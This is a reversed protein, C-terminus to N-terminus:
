PSVWSTYVKAKRLAKEMYRQIRAVYETHEDSTMPKLPWTGLLTQYLVYEANASPVEVGDLDGKRSQNMRRWSRLARYWEAPIESLVNIRARVDESRKTDHTSTALM